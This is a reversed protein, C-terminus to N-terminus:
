TYPLLHSTIYIIQENDLRMQLGHDEKYTFACDCVCVFVKSRLCNKDKRCSLMLIMVVIMWSTPKMMMVMMIMVMMVMMTMMTMMVIMVMLRCGHFKATQGRFFTGSFLIKSESELLNM